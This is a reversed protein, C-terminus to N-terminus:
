STRPAISGSIAPKKGHSGGVVIEFHKLRGQGAHLSGDAIADNGVVHTRQIGKEVRQDIASAIFDRYSNHSRESRTDTVKPADGGTVRFRRPLAFSEPKHFTNGFRRSPAIPICNLHLASAKDFSRRDEGEFNEFFHWRGLVDAQM